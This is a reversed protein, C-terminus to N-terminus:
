GFFENAPDSTLRPIVTSSVHIGAARWCVSTALINHLALLRSLADLRNVQYAVLVRPTHPGRCSLRNLSESRSLRDM